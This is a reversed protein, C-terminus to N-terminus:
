FQQIKYKKSLNDFLNSNFEGNKITSVEKDLYSITKNNELLKQDEIKYVLISDRLEVKDIEKNSGFLKKILIQSDRSTLSPLTKLESLSIYDKSDINLKSPDKVYSDAIKNLEEKTKIAKLEKEVEAKAEEYSKPQPEILSILHITVYADNVAKPKLFEGNKANEIAKWIEQSFKPDNKAVEVVEQAQIKGKKFRSRAIAADKKIKTLTIAKKVDEKVEALPKVKGNKDSFEYSNAKYYDEIEKDTINLDDAKTWVLELKYKTPTLYNIKNEQWFKKVDDENLTVNIDKANIVAYKIKDAIKFTSKVVEKEFNTPEVDILDALKKITLDEKIINEFDKPKMGRSKLFNEYISKQFVGNKDQFAKYNVIEKGIEKETVIIGFEKALNLLLAQKILSNYVQKDLGLKKAMEKDFKNGLKQAYQNYLNNLSFSYKMKSIPIDGVQAISSSKDGFKMSGWGVAGAGIFAITAIWITPVLYKNNKQMWGIM